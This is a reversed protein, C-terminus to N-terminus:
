SGNDIVFVFRQRAYLLNLLFVRCLATKTGPREEEDDEEEEEEEGKNERRIQPQTCDKLLSWRQGSNYTELFTMDQLDLFSKLTWM